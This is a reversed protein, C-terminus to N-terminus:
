SSPCRTACATSIRSANDTRTSVPMKSPTLCPPWHVTSAAYGTLENIYSLEGWEDYGIISSLQSDDSPHTINLGYYSFNNSGAGHCPTFFADLNSQGTITSLEPSSYHQRFAQRPGAFAENRFDTTCALSDDVTHRTVYGYAYTNNRYQDFNTRQIHCHGPTDRYSITQCAYGDSNTSSTERQM